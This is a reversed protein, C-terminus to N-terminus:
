ILLIPDPTWSVEKYVGDAKADIEMIKKAAHRVVDEILKRGLEPSASEPHGMVGVRM